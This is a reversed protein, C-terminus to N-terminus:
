PCYRAGSGLGAESGNTGGWVILESGSWVSEQQRVMRPGPAAAETMPAWSDLAPDYLGGDDHVFGESSLGGWIIM